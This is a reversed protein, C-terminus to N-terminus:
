LIWLSSAAIGLLVLLQIANIIVSQHHLRSFRQEAGEEGRQRADRAKGIKPMLIQRVYIFFIGVTACAVSLYFNVWLATVLSALALVLGWLYYTPFISRLFPGAQEQPLTKFVQPTVVIAFFLMSGALAGVLWLLIANETTV